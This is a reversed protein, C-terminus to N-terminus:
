DFAATIRSIREGEFRIKLVYDSVQDLKDRRLMVTCEHNSNVQKYYAPLQKGVKLLEDKYKLWVQADNLEISFLSYEDQDLGEGFSHDFFEIYSTGYRARVIETEMLDDKRTQVEDPQGFESIFSEKNIYRYYGSNGVSDIKQVININGINLIELDIVQTGLDQAISCNTVFTLLLLYFKDSLKM